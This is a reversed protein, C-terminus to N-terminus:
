SRATNPWSASGINGRRIGIWNLLFGFFRAVGRRLPKVMAIIVGSVMLVCALIAAYDGYEALRESTIGLLKAELM